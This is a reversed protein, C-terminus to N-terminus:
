SCTNGLEDKKVRLNDGISVDPMEMGKINRINRLTVFACYAICYSPLASTTKKCIVSSPYHMIDTLVRYMMQAKGLKFSAQHRVDRATITPSSRSTHIAVLPQVGRFLVFGHRMIHTFVQCPRTEMFTAMCLDHSAEITIPNIVIQFNNDTIRSKCSM